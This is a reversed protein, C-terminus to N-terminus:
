YQQSLQEDEEDEAESESDSDPVKIKNQSSTTHKLLPSDESITAQRRYPSQFLPHESEPLNDVMHLDGDTHRYHSTIEQRSNYNWGTRDNEEYRPLDLLESTAGMGENEERLVLGHYIGYKEREDAPLMGVLGRYKYDTALQIREKGMLYAKTAKTHKQVGKEYWVHMKELAADKQQQTVCKLPADDTPQRDKRKAVSSATPRTVPLKDPTAVNGFMLKRTVEDKGNRSRAINPREPTMGKLRMKTLVMEEFVSVDSTFSPLSMGGVQLLLYILCALLFTATNVSDAVIFDKGIVAPHM